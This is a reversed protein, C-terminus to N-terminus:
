EVRGQEFWRRRHRDYFVWLLDGRATEVQHYERHVERSWWGGSVVYPGDCSVVAGQDLDALLWGDDRLLRQKSQLPRPRAHIRRIAPPILVERPTPLRVADLREWAFSAEPLHAERLVAHFITADGFAARVRAIARGAADLDRRPNQRFLGGQKRHAPVAKADIRLEDVGDELGHSAFRITEFRLVVLNMWTKFDATPTAPRLVERHVGSRETKLDVGLEQLAFGKLALADLIAELRQRLIFLLSTTDVVPLDFRITDHIPDDLTIPQLPSWARNSANRHLEWAEKGFRDRVGSAPLDLFEGLRTVGLKDLSEVLRPPIALRVLPVGRVFRREDEERAFVIVDRIVRTAAFTGFRSSGVAIRATLKQEECRQRISWAWADTSPQIRELGAADLWFVGPTQDSPEVVPSFDHLQRALDEVGAAIESEEVVDARLERAISLAAAYTLGPRVGGQLAQEDVFLLIGRPSDRDVVATPHSAFEPRRRLLLQLPFAPLDVCALRDM